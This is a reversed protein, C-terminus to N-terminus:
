FRVAKLTVSKNKLYTLNSHHQVSEANRGLIYNKFWNIKKPIEFENIIFINPTEIVREIIDESTPCEYEITLALWGKLSIHEKLLSRLDGELYPELAELLEVLYPTQESPVLTKCIVANRFARKCEGIEFKIKPKAGAGLMNEVRQFRAADHISNPFDASPPLHLNEELPLPPLQKSSSEKFQKIHKSLSEQDKDDDEEYEDSFARKLYRSSRDLATEADEAVAVSGKKIQSMERISKEEELLPTDKRTPSSTRPQSSCFSASSIRNSQKSTSTMATHTGEDLGNITEISSNSILVRENKKKELKAYFQEFFTVPSHAGLREEPIYEQELLKRENRFSMFDEDSDSGFSIDANM